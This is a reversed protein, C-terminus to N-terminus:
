GVVGDPGVVQIVGSSLLKELRERAGPIEDLSGYETSTQEPWDIVHKTLEVMRDYTMWGDWEDDSEWTLLPDADLAERLSSGVQATFFGGRYRVYVTRGDDTVGEWQAPCAPSTKEYSVVRIRESM